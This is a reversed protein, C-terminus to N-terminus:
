RRRRIMYYMGYLGIISFMIGVSIYSFVCWYGYNNGMVDCRMNNHVISYFVIYIGTIFITFAILMELFINQSKKNM